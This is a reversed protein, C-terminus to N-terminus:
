VGPREIVAGDDRAVLSIAVVNEYDMLPSDNVALGLEYWAAGQTPSNVKAFTSEARNNKREIVEFLWTHPLEV